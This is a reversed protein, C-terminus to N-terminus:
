GPLRGDPEDTPGRRTRWHFQQEESLATGGSGALARAAATAAAVATAATAARQAPSVPTGFLANGFDSNETHHVVRRAGASLARRARQAARM